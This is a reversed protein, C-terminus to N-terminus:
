KYYKDVEARFRELTDLEKTTPVEAFILVVVGTYHELHLTLKVEAYEFDLYVTDIYYIYDL